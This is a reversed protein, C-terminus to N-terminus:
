ATRPEVACWGVPDTASYALLGRTAPADPHDAETQSRLRHALQESGLRAFAAGRGLKYRQCWCRSAMACSGFVEELDQWPPLNAPVIRYTMADTSMEGLTRKGPGHQWP